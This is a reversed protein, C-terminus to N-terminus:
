THLADAKNKGVVIKDTIGVAGTPGLESTPEDTIIPCDLNPCMIYLHDV